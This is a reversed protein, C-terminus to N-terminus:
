YVIKLFNEKNKLATQLLNSKLLGVFICASRAQCNISKKYNFEIDSFATFNQIQTFKKFNQFLANIYLYDYFFTQPFLPFKDGFFEFGSLKGSNQLREDRKADKPTKQLIDLFPGAFEFVKSAQFISEVPYKKGNFDFNLNFASLNVGLIEYSKSSIELVKENPYIKLFAEHLSKISKQKQSICLGKYFEFEVFEVKVFPKQNLLMFIPRKVM